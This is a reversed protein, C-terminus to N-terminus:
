KSTAESEKRRKNEEDKKKVICRDIFHGQHKCLNCYGPIEEYQIVQLKGKSLDDEDFGLWVHQPRAKILDIQIRVKAVSARTKKFLSLIM